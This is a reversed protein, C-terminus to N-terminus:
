FFNLGMKSFLTQMKLLNDFFYIDVYIKIDIYQFHLKAQYSLFLM